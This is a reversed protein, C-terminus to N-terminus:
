EELLEGLLSEQFAARARIRRMRARADGKVAAANASGSPETKIVHEHTVVMPTKKDIERSVHDVLLHMALQDFFPFAM